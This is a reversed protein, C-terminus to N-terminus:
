NLIKDTGPLDSVCTIDLKGSMCMLVHQAAMKTIKVISGIRDTGYRCTRIAHCLCRKLFIASFSSLRNIPLEMVVTFTTKLADM